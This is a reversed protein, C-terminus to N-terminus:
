NASQSNGAHKKAPKEARGKGIMTVQTGRGFIVLNSSVYDGTKTLRTQKAAEEAILNEGRLPPFDTLLRCTKAARAIDFYAAGPLATSKPNMIMIQGPEIVVSEGLHGPLMVRADGELLLLKVYLNRNRELLGTAGKSTLSIPGAAVDANSGHPIQFLIAGDRLEAAGGGDRLHLSTKAGLRVVARNAFTLESRANAGNEITVGASLINGVAVRSSAGNLGRVQVGNTLYTVRAGPDAHVFGAFGFVVALFTCFQVLRTKKMLQEVLKEAAL